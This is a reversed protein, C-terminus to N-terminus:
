SCEMNHGAELHVTQRYSGKRRTPGVRPHFAARVPFHGGLYDRFIDEQLEHSADRNGEM